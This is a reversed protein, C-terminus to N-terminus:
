KNRSLSLQTMPVIFPGKCVVRGARHFLEVAILGFLEPARVLLVGTM